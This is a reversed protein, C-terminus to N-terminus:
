LDMFEEIQFNQAKIFDNLWIVLDKRRREMGLLGYALQLTVCANMCVGAMDYLFLFSGALIFLCAKLFM